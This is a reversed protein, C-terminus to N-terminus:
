RRRPMWAETAMELRKADGELKMLQKAALKKAAELRPARRTRHATESGFMHEAGATLLTM